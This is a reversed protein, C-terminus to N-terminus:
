LGAKFHMEFLQCSVMDEDEFIRWIILHKAGCVSNSDNLEIGM